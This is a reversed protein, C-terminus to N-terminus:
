ENSSFDIKEFMLDFEQLCYMLQDYNYNEWEINKLVIKFMISFKIKTDFYKADKPLEETIYAIVKEKKCDKLDARKCVEELISAVFSKYATELDLMAYNEVNKFLITKSM